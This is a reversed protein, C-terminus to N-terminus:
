SARCPEYDAGSRAAGDVSSYIVVLLDDLPRSLEITFVIEGSREGVEEPAATVSLVPLDGPPLAM